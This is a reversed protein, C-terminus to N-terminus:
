AAKAVAPRYCGSKEYPARVFREDLNITTEVAGLMLYGDPRLVKHIRGLIQQKAKVDFYIMVNRIFVIDFPGMGIPWAGNLNLPEFQVMSCIEPNLQWELGHKTFYKLLLQVPMGRNVELQTFVGKRARDLVQLNIDTALQTIKWTALEPFHERLLISMSYPEQGTSSAAYWIRLEKSPRRAEILAPVIDKRLVEFPDHDRFFSTENTTLAEIVRRHLDTGRTTRLKAELDEISACGSAKAVPALRSEILYDKGEDLVIGADTRLLTRVYDFRGSM